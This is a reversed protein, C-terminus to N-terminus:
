LVNALYEIINLDKIDLMLELHLNYVHLFHTHTKSFDTGSIEM